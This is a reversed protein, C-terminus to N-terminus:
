RLWCGAHPGVQAFGQKVQLTLSGCGPDEAQAGLAKATAMYTEGSTRALIIEYRGQPSRNSTGLLASLDAAYMGHASRYQEQAQQLRTLAEVGDLRGARFDHSRLGPVAVAALIALMACVVLVEIITFGAQYALQQVPSIPQM